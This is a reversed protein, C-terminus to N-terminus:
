IDPSKQIRHTQTHTSHTLGNRLTLGKGMLKTQANETLTNNILWSSLAISRQNLFVWCTFFLWYWQMKNKMERRSTVLPWEQTWSRDASDSISIYTSIGKLFCSTMRLTLIDSWHEQCFFSLAAIYELIQGVGASLSLSLSLQDRTSWLLVYLASNEAHSWQILQIYWKLVSKCKHM